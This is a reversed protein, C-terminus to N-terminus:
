FKWIDHRHINSSRCRGTASHGASMRRSVTTESLAPRAAADGRRHRTRPRPDHAGRGARRGGEAGGRRRVPLRGPADRRRLRADAAGAAPEQDGLRLRADAVLMGSHSIIGAPSRARRLGVHLAMMAGQSFGILLLDSDSLRHRALEADLFADLFPAAARVGNMRTDLSLNGISFWMYGFPAMDFPFPAHPSVIYAEPLVSHYYPALSILDGGDAGVGHLLVILQKPAGGSRPPVSPGSLLRESAMRGRAPNGLSPPM